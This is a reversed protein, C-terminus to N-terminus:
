PLKGYANRLSVKHSPRVIGSRLRHSLYTRALCDGHSVYAWPGVFLTRDRSRVCLGAVASVYRYTLVACVLVCLLDVGILNAGWVLVGGVSCVDSLRPRDIM